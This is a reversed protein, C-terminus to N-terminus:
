LRPTLQQEHNLGGIGNLKTAKKLEELMAPHMVTRGDPFCFVEKSPVMPIVTKTKKLPRWPRTFLRERWSRLEEYLEGEEVMHPNTYVNLGNFIAM